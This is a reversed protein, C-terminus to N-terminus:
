RKDTKSEKDRSPAPQEPRVIFAFLSGCIGGAIHATASIGDAQLSKAHFLQGGMYLVFVLIFSLPIENRAIATYSALLIMMFVIDSAGAEPVSIFCANIIGTILATVAMMLILRASGYRKELIPGLLLIISMNSILHNWDTHGFIHSFLRFYDLPAKWCFPHTSNKNGPIIFLANVLTRHLVYMDLLMIVTCALAFSLTVPANYTVRIKPASDPTKKM